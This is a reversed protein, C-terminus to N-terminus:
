GGSFRLENKVIGGKVGVGAGNFILGSVQVREARRTKLWDWYGRVEVVV